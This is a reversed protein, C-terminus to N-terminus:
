KGVEVPLYKVGWRLAEAHSNVYVDIRNGKIAGGRDEVVYEKGNIILKTGFSLNSPAAVTRGQTAKTGSATYGNAHGGCCKACACYATVKYVKVNGSGSDSNGGNDTTRSINVARSTIRAQVRVIRSVPEKLIEESIVTRSIEVDNQYKVKYTVKKLGEQGERLVKNKTDTEGDSIDKTVTEFPITEEVVEIKETITNYAQLLLDLTTEVGSESVKAVEIEQENKNTIKIEKTETIQGNIDPIVKEDKELIINNDALIESITTKSTLVTMEYGDALTIKVSNIKTAVGMVGAGSLLILIVCLFIIRIVSFPKKTRKKM